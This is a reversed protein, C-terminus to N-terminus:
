YNVRNDEGTKSYYAADISTGNAGSAVKSNNTVRQDPKVYYGNALKEGLKLKYRNLFTNAPTEPKGFLDKVYQGSNLDEEYQALRARSHALKPSYTVIENEPEPEPTPEEKKAGSLALLAGEVDTATNFNSFKEGSDKELSSSFVAGQDTDLGKKQQREFGDISYFNGSPGQVIGKDHDSKTADSTSLGYKKLQEATLAM